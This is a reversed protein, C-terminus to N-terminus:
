DVDVYIDSGEMRVAFRDLPSVAPFATAKGSRAAFKGGHRPCCLTDGELWGGSLSVGAHTCADSVAYVGDSLRVLLVDTEDVTVRLLGSEPIDALSGVRCFAM